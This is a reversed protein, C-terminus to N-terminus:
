IGIFVASAASQIVNKIRRNTADAVIRAMSDQLAIVKGFLREFSLNNVAGMENSLLYLQGDSDRDNSLKWAAIEVNRAANHLRQPDLEDLLYFAQKGNYSDLLMGRLGEMLALVRDGGYTEDFALRMAQISRQGKLELFADPREDGFIRAVAIEVSPQRGKDRWEKPNRRYLKETLAELHMLARGLHVEAVMDVDSKALDTIDFSQGQVPADKQAASNCGALLLLALCLLVTFFDKNKFTV